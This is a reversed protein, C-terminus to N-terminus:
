QGDNIGFRKMKKYLTTRNIGLQRAAAKRSGGAAKLADLIIQKEPEAMAEALTHPRGGAPRPAQGALWKGTSRIADPLDDIGICSQRSVVVARQVCNELERVNGPWSYRQMLEMSEPAFGLTTRGAGPLYKELFHKALLPIDGARDRLPPLEISVVNVRYFLDERFRGAQVEAWLDRNTALLVRVDAQLTQNSGVPEFTREQLVRLLKVQLQPSAAAIEDLFITGGDAAMFKGSKDNLAGTFAGRVHGFLESELLAEPLAGCSVEVFPGDRRPSHAHIARAVLSKGTGSEGCVLVTTAAGAVASMLDFVKAMRYDQSVITPFRGHEDLERRLRRNEETLRQHHLSRRVAMRVDDELVPKTLYDYAGQKMAEIASAITGYATIIIVAVSPHRARVHRLLEFGDQGPMSLDTIVLDYVGAALWDTAESVSAAATVDYGEERLFAALSDLVIPDGDVLLIRATGQQAAPPSGTETRGALASTRDDTVATDM